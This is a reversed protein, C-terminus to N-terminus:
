QITEQYLESIKGVLRDVTLGGTFLPRYTTNRTKPPAIALPVSAPTRHGFPLSSPWLLVTKTGFTIGMNTLGSHYGVVIESSRMLGFAQGLSTKGALNIAGPVMSILQSLFDNYQLDWYAGVFVPVLGLRVTIQRIAEALKDLSFQSLHYKIYNGNFTWYFVAYKGHRKIYEQGFREQEGSLILEFNWNCEIDDCDDLWHGSNIVGNYCIFYDYGYLGSYATRGFETFAERYIDQIHGPRPDVPDLPFTAPDGIQVFPVMELLPLTRLQGEDSNNCLVTVAPRGSIGNKRCFAELKVLIWYIDGIGTPVLIRTQRSM